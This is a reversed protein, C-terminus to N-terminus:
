YYRYDEMLGTGEFFIVRYYSSINLNNLQKECRSIAISPCDTMYNLNGGESDSHLAKDLREEFSTFTPQYISTSRSLLSTGQHQSTTLKSATVISKKKM